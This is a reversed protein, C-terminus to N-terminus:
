CCGAVSLRASRLRSLFSRAAWTTSLREVDLTDGRAIALGRLFPMADVAFGGWVEAILPVVRHGGRLAAAYKAVRPTDRRPGSIYYRTLARTACEDTAGAGLIESRLQPETAGFPRVAGRRMETMDARIPNYVKVEGILHAGAQGAFETVFDPVSPYSYAPADATARTQAAGHVATTAEVWARV